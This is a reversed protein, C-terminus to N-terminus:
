KLQLGEKTNITNYIMVELEIENMGSIIQKKSLNNKVGFIDRFHVLYYAKMVDSIPHKEAPQSDRFIIKEEIYNGAVSNKKSYVEYKTM